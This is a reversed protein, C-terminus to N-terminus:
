DRRYAEASVVFDGLKKRHEAVVRLAENLSKTKGRPTFLEDAERELQTLVRRIGRGGLGADFRTEGVHGKGVMLVKGGLRLRAQDLGFMGAYMERSLGGLADLLPRDDAPNGSADQLTNKRGSRRVWFHSSGDALVVRAGIKLERHTHTDGTLHP